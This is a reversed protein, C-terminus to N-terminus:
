KKKKKRQRRLKARAKRLNKRRIKDMEAKRAERAEQKIRGIELNIMSSIRRQEARQQELRQAALKQAVREQAQDRLSALQAAEAERRERERVAENLREMREQAPSRRPKPVHPLEPFEDRRYRRWVPDPGKAIGPIEAVLAEAVAVPESILLLLPDIMFGPADTITVADSAFIELIGPIVRQVTASDGVSITEAESVSLDSITTIQVSPSDGVTIAEQESVGPIAIEAQAAEGVSVAEQESLGPITLPSVSATDGVSVAEQETPLDLGLLLTPADTVTVAESESLDPIVIPSVSPTDAVSVGDSVNPEPGGAAATYEIHLKGPNGGSKDYSDHRVFENTGNDNVAIFLFCMDNGSEWGERDVIEQVISVISPTQNYDDDAPTTDIFVNATTRTRGDIDADTSFDVADDVDNGYIFADYGNLVANVYLDLYAADITAGQPVEVTQFRFGAHQYSPNTAEHYSYCDVNDGTLDFGGDGAEDADDASAAIDEELTPDFILDGAPLAAIQDVRAGVLLYYNTGDKWIRKKLQVPPNDLWPDSSPVRLESVPLFALLNDLADRLEIGPAGDDDFDDEINQLIGNKVWRPIQSPDIRFVFALYTENAPTAPPHNSTIWNRAAESVVIEEKLRRPDAQWRVDVPGGVSASWIDNWTSICRAPITEGTSPLEIRQVQRSLNQRDYNPAGAIDDWSRTPWHIYGMRLLRFLLWAAGKRGGFGVWGDTAKGAPQGLFYHWGNNIIRWGDNGGALVRQPTLDVQTDHVGSDLQGEYHLPLGVIGDIAFRTPDDSDQFLKSHRRRGEPVEIWAM